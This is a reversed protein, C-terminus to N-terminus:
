LFNCLKISKDIYIAIDETSVDNHLPCKNQSFIESHLIDTKQAVINLRPVNLYRPFGVIPM